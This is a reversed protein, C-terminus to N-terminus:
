RCRTSLVGQFESRRLAFRGHLSSRSSLTQLSRRYLADIIPSDRRVTSSQLRLVITSTAGGCRETSSALVVCRPLVRRLLPCFSNISRDRYRPRGAFSPLDALHRHLLFSRVDRQRDYAADTGLCSVIQAAVITDLAYLRTLRIPPDALPPTFLIEEHLRSPGIAALLHRYGAIHAVRNEDRLMMADLPKRVVKLVKSVGAKWEGSWISGRISGARIHDAITRKLEKRDIPPLVPQKKLENNLMSTADAVNKELSPCIRTLDCMCM